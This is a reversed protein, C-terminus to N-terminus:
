VDCVRVYEIVDSKLRPWFFFQTIKKYTAEQGSHGSAPSDHLEWIISKRVDGASGM